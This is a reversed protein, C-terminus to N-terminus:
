LIFVRGEVRLEGELTLQEAIIFQYTSRIWALEDAYIWERMYALGTGGHALEKLTMPEPVAVDQFTLNDEADRSVRVVDDSSTDSQITVGRCDLFDEHVDIESPSLDTETGGHAPDEWKLSQVRDITM